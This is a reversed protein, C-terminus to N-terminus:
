GAPINRVANDYSNDSAKKYYINFSVAGDIEPIDITAQAFLGRAISLGAVSQSVTSKHTNVLVGAVVAIVVCASIIVIRQVIVAPEESSRNRRPATRKISSSAKRSVTTKKKM